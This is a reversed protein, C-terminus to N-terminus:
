EEKKAQKPSVFFAEITNSQKAKKAPPPSALLGGGAGGDGERKTGGKNQEPEKNEVEADGAASASMQLVVGAVSKDEGGGSEGGGTGGMMMAMQSNAAQQQQLLQQQLLQQQLLQQKAAAEHLKKAEELKRAEAQAVNTQSQQVGVIHKCLERTLHNARIQIVARTQVLLRAQVVRTDVQMSGDAAAVMPLQYTLKDKEAWRSHTTAIQYRQSQYIEEVSDWGLEMLASLLGLDCQASWYTPQQWLDGASQIDRIVKKMGNAIENISSEFFVSRLMTQQAFQAFFNRSNKGNMEAYVVCSGAALASQALLRGHVTSKRYQYMKYGITNVTEDCLSLICMWKEKVGQAEALVQSGLGGDSSKGKAQKKTQIDFTESVAQLLLLAVKAFNLSSACVFDVDKPVHEPPSEVCLENMLSATATAARATSECQDYHLMDVQIVTQLSQLERTHEGATAMIAGYQAKRSELMGWAMKKDRQADMLNKEVQDTAKKKIQLWSVMFGGGDKKQKSRPLVPIGLYILSELIIMEAQVLKIPPKEKDKEAVVVEKGSAIKRQKRLLDGIASQLSAEGNTPNLKKAEVKPPPRSRPRNVIQMPQNFQQVAQIPSLGLLNRLKNASSLAHSRFMAAAARIEKVCVALEAAGLSTKNAKGLELEKTALALLLVFKKENLERCACQLLLTALANAPCRPEFTTLFNGQAQMTLLSHKGLYRTCLSTLRRMIWNRNPFEPAPPAPRPAAAAAAAAITATTTTEVIIVDDHMTAVEVSEGVNAAEKGEEKAEVKKEGQQKREEEVRAKEAESTPAWWKGERFELRYWRRIEMECLNNRLLMGFQDSNVLAAARESAADRMDDCEVDRGMKEGNYPAGFVEVHLQRSVFDKFQNESETFNGHTLMTKILKLDHTRGWGHNNTDFSESGPPLWSLNPMDGDQYMMKSLELAQIRALVVLAKKGQKATFSKEQRICNPIHWAAAEVIKGYAYEPQILKTAESEGGPLPSPSRKLSDAGRSEEDRKRLETVVPLLESYMKEVTDLVSKLNNNFVTGNNVSPPAQIKMGGNLMGWGRRELEPMLNRYFDAQAHKHLYTVVENNKRKAHRAQLEKGEDTEGYAFVDLLVPIAWKSNGRWMNGFQAALIPDNDKFEPAPTENRMKMKKRVDAADHRAGWKFLVLFMNRYMMQLTEQGDPASAFGELKPDTFM